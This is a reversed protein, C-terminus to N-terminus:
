NNIVRTELLMSRVKNAAPRGSTTSALTSSKHSNGQSNVLCNELFIDVQLIVGHDTAFASFDEDFIDYLTFQHWM